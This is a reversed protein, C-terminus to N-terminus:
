KKNNFIKFAVVIIIIFGITPYNSLLSILGMFLLAVTIIDFTDM